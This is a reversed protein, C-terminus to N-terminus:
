KHVINVSISEYSVVAYGGGLLLALLLLLIALLAQLLQIRLRGIGVNLAASVTDELVALGVGSQGVGIGAADLAMGVWGIDVLYQLAYKTVVKRTGNALTCELTCQNYVTRSPLLQSLFRGDQALGIPHHIINSSNSHLGLQEYLVKHAM